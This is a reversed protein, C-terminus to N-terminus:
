NIMALRKSKIDQSLKHLYELRKNLLNHYYKFTAVVKNNPSTELNHFVKPKRGFVLEYPSSNELTPSNFTNYVFTVM